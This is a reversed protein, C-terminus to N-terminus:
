ALGLYEELTLGPHAAFIAAADAGVYRVHWSEWGYGTIDTRGKPYRVILGFDTAHAALYDAEPTTAFADGRHGAADTLDAALGTQHESCGAQAYFLSAKATGYQRVARAFSQAQTASSRYGSRIRLTLGRSAADAILADLADAVEPALGNPRSAWSPVFSTSIPHQKNVVPIGNIVTSAGTPWGSIGARPKENPRSSDDRAVLAASTTTGSRIAVGTGPWASAPPVAASACTGAVIVATLLSTVLRV